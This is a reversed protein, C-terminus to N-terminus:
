LKKIRRVRELAELWKVLLSSLRELDAIDKEEMIQASSEQLKVLILREVDDLLPSMATLLEEGEKVTM